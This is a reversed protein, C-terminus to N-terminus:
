NSITSILSLISLTESYPIVDMTIHNNTKRRMDTLGLFVPATDKEDNIERIYKEKLQTRNLNNLMAITNSLLEVKVTDIYNVTIVKMENKKQTLLFLGPIEQQDDSVSAGHMCINQLMEIMVSILAKKVKTVHQGGIYSETLQMLDRVYEHGFRGYFLEVAHNQILSKHLTYAFNKEAKLAENTAQDTSDGILTQFYFYSYDDNINEFDYSLKNGSKRMIELLGLGAGGKDSLESSSLAQQYYQKLEEPSLANLSDIKNRLYEVDEPKILNGSTIMYRNNVKYIAFYGDILKEQLPNSQHRTINQLAEVLIFYVKKRTGTSESLNTLTTESLSLIQDILRDDFVGNSAFCLQFQTLHSFLSSWIKTEHIVM